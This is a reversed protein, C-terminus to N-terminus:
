SNEHSVEKRLEVIRKWIGQSAEWLQSELQYPVLESIRSTEPYEGEVYSLQWRADKLLDYLRELRWLVAAMVEHNPSAKLLEENRM